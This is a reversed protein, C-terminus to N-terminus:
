YERMGKEGPMPVPYLGDPGALVPAPSDETLEAVQPALEHEGNLVADFGVERGIHAAIRGMATVLSTKVGNEVENHPRDDRIAAVLADWENQYPNRLEDPVESTWLQNAADPNHGKYTSSPLGCDGSKSVIAMGKTGHAYSAYRTECGTMNRGEFCLRAGDEFTYEVAYSDFNQDVFVTDGERRFHRGGVGHAKIPWADKMWCLHDIIHINFDCFAGGSAWLFSHFRDIQYMLERMNDPKRPSRFSAVPGQMRYGRLLLVDGIEGGHIREALERMGHNYRSMLGVGVKLGKEIAARDLELMRKASPGDVCVPKEMFVNLGKEIAYRYHVWRFAPPTTLIVIDGPVLCDMAHRYADFGVFRREEPVDVRDPFREQVAALTRAARDPFVDATAVLRLDAGPVSLANVVAGGGRGGCGVVAVRITEGGRVHVQPLAGPWTSVAAAGGINFLFDRRTPSDPSRANM